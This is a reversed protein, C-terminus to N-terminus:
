NKLAKKKIKILRNYVQHFNKRVVIFSSIIGLMTLYNYRAKFIDITFVHILSKIFNSLFIKLLYLTWITKPFYINSKYIILRYLQLVPISRSFGRVNELFYSKNLRSQDFKHIFKIQQIFKVKYGLMFIALSLETDEGGVYIPDTHNARKPNLEIKYGYKRLKKWVTINIISCAGWVWDNAKLPIGIAYHEKFENFWSPLTLNSDVIGFSGVCGWNPEVLIKKAEKIYNQDLINDDDVIVAYDGTASDLAIELAPTKGPLDCQIHNFKINYKSTIKKVIEVTQDTSNYDALIIDIFKLDIKQNAISEVVEVLVRKSNRTCLIFSFKM